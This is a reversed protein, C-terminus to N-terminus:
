LWYGEGGGDHAAHATRTRQQLLDTCGRQGSLWIKELEVIVDAELFSRDGRRLRLVPDETYGARHKAFAEEWAAKNAKSYDM